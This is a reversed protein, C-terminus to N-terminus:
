IGAAEHGANNKAPGQSIFCYHPAGAGLAPGELTEAAPGSSGGCCLTPAQSPPLAPAQAPAGRPRPHQCGGAVVALGAAWTVRSSAPRLTGHGQRGGYPLARGAVGPAPSLHPPKSPFCNNGGALGAGAKWSHGPEPCPLPVTPSFAGHGSRPGQGEQGPAGTKGTPGCLEESQPKRM